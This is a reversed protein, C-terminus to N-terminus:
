RSATALMNNPMTGAVQAHDAAPQYLSALNGVHAHQALARHFRLVVAEGQASTQGQAALVVSQAATTPALAACLVLSGVLARLLLHQREGPLMLQTTQAAVNM